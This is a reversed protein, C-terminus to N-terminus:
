RDPDLCVVAPGEGGGGGGPGLRRDLLNGAQTTFVSSTGQNGANMFYGDPSQKREHMSDSAYVIYIPFWFPFVLISDLQTSENLKNM